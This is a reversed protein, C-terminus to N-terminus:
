ASLIWEFECSGQGQLIDGVGFNAAEIQFDDTSADIDQFALGGLLTKNGSMSLTDANNSIGVTYSRLLVGGRYQNLLIHCRNDPSPASWAGEFHFSVRVIYINSVNRSVSPAAIYDWVAGGTM